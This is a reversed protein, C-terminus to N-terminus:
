EFIVSFGVEVAAGDSGYTKVVADDNGLPCSSLGVVSQGFDGTAIIGANNAFPSAVAVKPNFPLDFCYLNDEGTIAPQQVSVVNESRALDMTGDSAVFAFAKATGRAGPTGPAGPAGREGQLGRDGKPGPAGTDGKAGRPLQGPAFDAARLSANKVKPSTIANKAVHRAKVSNRQLSVAAVSTGGLAAFLALYAVVTAHSPRRALKGSM